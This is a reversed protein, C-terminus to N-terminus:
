KLENLVHQKGDPWLFIKDSLLVQEKFNGWNHDKFNFSRLEVFCRNQGNPVFKVEGVVEFVGTIESRPVKTLDVLIFFVDSQRRRKRIPNYDQTIISYSPGRFNFIMNQSNMKTIEKYKIGRYWLIWVATCATTYSDRGATHSKLPQQQRTIKQHPLVNNKLTHKYINNLSKSDFKNKLDRNRVIYAVDYVVPFAEHLDKKFDNIKEAIPGIFKSYTYYLDLLCSFGVVVPKHKILLDIVRSFGRLTNLAKLKVSEFEEEVRFFRVVKQNKDNKTKLLFWNKEDGYKQMVAKILYDNKPYVEFFETKVVFGVKTNIEACLLDFDENDNPMNEMKNKQSFEFGAVMSDFEQKNLYSIGKRVVLNLDVGSNAMFKLCSNDVHVICSSKNNDKMLIFNYTKCTYSLESGSENKSEVNQRKNVFTLGYQYVDYMEATKKKKLHRIQEDDFCVDMLSPSPHLGTFELDFCVFCLTPDKLHNEIKPVTEDFNDITVTTLDM